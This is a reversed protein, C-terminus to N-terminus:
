WGDGRGNGGRSGGISYGPWKTTFCTVSAPVIKKGRRRLQEEEGLREFLERDAKLLDGVAHPRQVEAVQPEAVDVFPVVADM